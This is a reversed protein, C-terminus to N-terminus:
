WNHEKIEALRYKLSVNRNKDAFMNLLNLSITLENIVFFPM